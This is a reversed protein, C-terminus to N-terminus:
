LIRCGYMVRSLVFLISRGNSEVEALLFDPDTAAEVRPVDQHSSSRWRM